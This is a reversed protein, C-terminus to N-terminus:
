QPETLWEENPTGGREYHAMLVRLADIEDAQQATTM